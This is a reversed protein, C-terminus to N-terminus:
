DQVADFMTGAERIPPEWDKRRDNPGTSVLPKKDPIEILDVIKAADDDDLIKLAQSPSKLTASWLLNATEEDLRRGELTHPHLQEEAGEKWVRKPTYSVLRFNKIERGRLLRSQAEEKLDKQLDVLGNVQLLLEGLKDDSLTEADITAGPGEEYEHADIADFLEAAAAIRQEALASCTGRLPCFGCAEESPKFEAKPDDGFLAATLAPSLVDDRWAILDDIPESWMKVGGSRPQVIYYTVTEVDVALYGEDDIVQMLAGLAYIRLQPNEEIAVDVGQGYKLDAVVLEPNGGSPLAILDASGSIIYVEEDHSGSLPIVAGVRSEVLINEDGHSEAYSRVLDTYLEIHEGMERNYAESSNPNISLGRLTEELDKQDIKGLILNAEAEAAAHATTGQRAAESGYALAEQEQPTMGALKDKIGKLSATCTMWRGAGSPSAGSHGDFVYDNTVDDPIFLELTEKSM